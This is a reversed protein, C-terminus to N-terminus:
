RVVGTIWSVPIECDTEGTAFDVVVAQTDGAFLMTCIGGMERGTPTIWYVTDGAVLDAVAVNGQRVPHDYITDDFNM